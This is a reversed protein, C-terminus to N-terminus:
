SVSYFRAVNHNYNIANFLIQNQGKQNKRPTHRPAHIFVISQIEGLERRAKQNQGQM